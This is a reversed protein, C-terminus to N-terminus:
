RAILWERVLQNDSFYYLWKESTITVPFRHSVNTALTRHNLGDFDYVSLEGNEVSYIMYQNLWGFDPSATTWERIQVAEMDITAVKDGSYMVVFEGDHGIKAFDPVFTIDFEAVIELDNKRYISIHTDEIVYLYQSDYFKGILVKASTTIPKVLATKDDGVKLLVASDQDVFFIESDYFDYDAVDKALIASIQRSNVDIKRLNGDQLVLLNDSSYDFISIREFNTAFERTLNISKNINKIDLLIWQMAGNLDIQLLVHESASDWEATIIKGTFLGPANNALDDSASFVQSINLNSTKLRDNDLDILTWTTTNNLLLLLKRNPSVTAFTATVTDYVVEKTREKLFLYPYNLRYLLGERINITKSWTDYGDKSLVVEHEGSSLIKSTNTRQFWPSDGDVAVSAGTPVSNIQLMGQREVEFNANLWYGSVVLALVAVTIIVTIVMILESVILRFSQRRARKELDM